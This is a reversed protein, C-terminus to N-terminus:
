DTEEGVDAEPHPWKHNAPSCCNSLSAGFGDELTVNLMYWAVGRRHRPRFEKIKVHQYRCDYVTDGVKLQKIWLKQAQDADHRSQM